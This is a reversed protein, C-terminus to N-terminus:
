ADEKRNMLWSKMTSNYHITTKGNAYFNDNPCVTFGARKALRRGKVKGMRCVLMTENKGVRIIREEFNMGPIPQKIM